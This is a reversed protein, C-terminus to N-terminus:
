EEIDKKSFEENDEDREKRYLKDKRKGSMLDGIYEMIIIDRTDYDLNDIIKCELFHIYDSYFPIYKVKEENSEEHCLKDKKCSM